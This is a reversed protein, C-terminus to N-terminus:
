KYEKQLRQEQLKQKKKIGKPTDRLRLWYETCAVEIREYDKFSQVRVPLESKKNHILAAKIKFTDGFQLQDLNAEFKYYRDM